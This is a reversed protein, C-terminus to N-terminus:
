PQLYQRRIKSIERMGTEVSQQLTEAQAGEGFLRRALIQQEMPTEPVAHLQQDEFIQLFHELRRFLLYHDRLYQCVAVPLLGLVQIQNLANLTSRCKVQPYRAVHM